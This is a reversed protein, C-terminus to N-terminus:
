SPPVQCWSLDFGGLTSVTAHSELDLIRTQLRAPLPLLYGDYRNTVSAPSLLVAAYRGSPSVCTQLVGDAPDVTLLADVAGDDAVRVIQTSLLTTGDGLDAYTRVTGAGAGPIPTVDGLAGLDATADVLPSEAGDTLDITARGELREVYAVSSGRAIGDIALASGLPAAGTGDAASLLLRSDFTLVLISDTDPVFRWDAVRGDDGSIAVQTPAEDAAGEALSATFLLSERGGAASLDTDSFTYGIREGRDATQLNSVFGDGPLPLERANQGDLDTVVLAAHDDASRVSMVLHSATARFDEIHTHAYVIAPEDGTLLSRTVVDDNATGRQLAYVDLAPTRFSQELTASPGGGVGQADRIRVTYDTDDRLPLTFRVGVSRGSTDVTFPTAPEVEVQAADVTRLSQTTTLIVRSGSAQIAAAPDAQVGTVRPGQAVSVFAGVGSVLVLVGLVAAFALLFGRGRRRKTRSRRTDTSM